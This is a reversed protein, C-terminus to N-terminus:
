GTQPQCLYYWFFASNCPAAIACSFLSFLDWNSVTIYSYLALKRRSDSEESHSSEHQVRSPNTRKGHRWGRDECLMDRVRVSM